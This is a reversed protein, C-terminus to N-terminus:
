KGMGLARAMETTINWGPFGPKKGTSNCTKCVGTIDGIGGCDECKAGLLIDKIYQLKQEATCDYKHWYWQSLGGWLEKMLSMINQAKLGYRAINRSLTFDDILHEPRIGWNFENVTVHIRKVAEELPIDLPHWLDLCWNSAIALWNGSGICRGDRRFYPDDMSWRIASFDFGYHLVTDPRLVATWDPTDPHVLTDLDTYIIWDYGGGLEYLQMKEYTVPWDPFKRETIEIYEAGIKRAYARLFPRTIAAIEPQYNDINLTFVAKRM